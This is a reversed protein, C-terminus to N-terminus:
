KTLWSIAVDRSLEVGTGITDNIMVEGKKYVFGNFPDNKLLFPGDLDCYDFESGLISAVSVTCSCEAMCGMMLKSNKAKARAIMQLSEQIGGSKMLKINFGDVCDIWENMDSLTWVHEDVFVPIASREQLWKYDAPDLTKIPEEVFLAGAKSLREINKIAVEKSKWGQNVDVFFKKNTLTIVQDLVEWENQMGMKLKLNAFDKSRKLSEEVLDANAVGITFATPISSREELGLFKQLSIGQVKSALIHVALDLAALAPRNGSSIARLYEMIATVNTPDRFPTVNVKKFISIVSEQTEKFYPPLAAMGYASHEEHSLELLVAHTGTRTGKSLTFPQKFEIWFPAWRIEM